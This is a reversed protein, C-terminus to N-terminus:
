SEPLDEMMIGLTDSKFERRYLVFVVLASLAIFLWANVFWGLAAMAFYYSRLGNNFNGSAKSSMKSISDVHRSMEEASPKLSLEPAGGIMVSVLGYQRLAWTFKFFSYVFLTILVLVKVEWEGRSTPDSFPVEALIGLVADSASLLTVLGALVLLSSSAFFSVNRELNAVINTDAIRNDRTLAMRIWQKRFRHMAFALCPTDASRLGTYYLYGKFCSVFFVLAIVDMVNTSFFETIVTSM